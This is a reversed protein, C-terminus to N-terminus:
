GLNEGCHQFHPPSYIYITYIYVERYIYISQKIDTECGQTVQQNAAILLAVNTLKSCPFVKGQHAGQRWSGHALVPRDPQVHGLLSRHLGPLCATSVAGARVPGGVPTEACLYEQDKELRVQCLREKESIHLLLGVRSTWARVATSPLCAPSARGNQFGSAWTCMKAPDRDPFTWHGLSGYKKPDARFLLSGNLGLM